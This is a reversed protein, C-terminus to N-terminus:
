TFDYTPALNILFGTQLPVDYRCWAIADSRRLRFVINPNNTNTRHIVNFSQDRSKGSIAAYWTLSAGHMLMIIVSRLLPPVTSAICNPAALM